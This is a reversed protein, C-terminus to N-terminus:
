HNPAHSGGLCPPLFTEAVLLQKGFLNFCSRRTFLVLHSPYNDHNVPVNKIATTTIDFHTRTLSPHKFLETGLSQNSLRRLYNLKGTTTSFPILSRGYVWVNGDCLLLVERLQVKQRPKLGLLKAEELNPNHWQQSIKQVQFHAKCHLKLKETLSSPDLLWERYPNQALHMNKKDIHPRM